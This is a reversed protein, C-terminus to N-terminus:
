ISTEHQAQHKGSQENGGHPGRRTLDYNDVGVGAEKAVIAGGDRHQQAAGLLHGNGPDRDHGAVDPWSLARLVHEMNEIQQLLRLHRQIEARFRRQNMGGGHGALVRSPPAARFEDAREGLIGLLDLGSGAGLEAARRGCWSDATVNRMESISRWGPSTVIRAIPGMVLMASASRMFGSISVRILRMTKIPPLTLTAPLADDAASNLKKKSGSAARMTSRERIGCFTINARSMQLVAGM